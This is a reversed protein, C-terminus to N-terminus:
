AAQEPWLTLLNFPATKKLGLEGLFTRCITFWLNPIRTTAKLSLYKPRGVATPLIMLPVKSWIPSLALLLIWTQDAFFISVQAPLSIIKFGTIWAIGVYLMLQKWNVLFTQLPMVDQMAFYQHPLEKSRLDKCQTDHSFSADGFIEPPM